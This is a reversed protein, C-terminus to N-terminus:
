RPYAKIIKKRLKKKITDPLSSEVTYKYLELYVKTCAM